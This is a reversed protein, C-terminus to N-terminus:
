PLRARAAGQSDLLEKAHAVALPADQPPTHLAFIQAKTAEQQQAEVAKQTGDSGIKVGFYAGVISGIVGIASTAISTGTTAPKLALAVVVVVILAFLGVTLAVLGGIVKL